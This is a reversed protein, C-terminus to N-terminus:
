FNKFDDAAGNFAPRKDSEPVLTPKGQPKTIFAGLLASFNKKGVMKELDTITKLEQPKFIDEFGEQTLANIAGQTDTIKRVSRGEVLKYGDYQTGNLAKQLAFEAVADVWNKITDLMPLVEKAMEEDTILGTDSFQDFVAVAQQALAKCQCKVRCFRCWDGPQQEGEGKMAMDAKKKLETKAWAFLDNVDMEYESLNSIRPQVITMRVRQIDYYDIFEGCAGLAYIMMQTNNVASVEVGKGYKFDIVELVGDAIIIADATGFSDPIWESFDLRREVILKADATVSQSEQLKGLVINVYSEVHDPMEDSYYDDYLEEIETAEAKTGLGLYEKLRKACFAHALSGERTFDSGKNPVDKELMASPTCHLWRHSASPSLLAHKGM